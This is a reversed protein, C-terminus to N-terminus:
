SNKSDYEAQAQELADKESKSERLFLDRARDKVEEALEVEEAEVAPNTGETAVEETVKKDELEIKPSAEVLRKVIESVTVTEEKGDSSLTVGEPTVEALLVEEAVKLIAPSFKDNEWGKIQDTVGREHEGLKLGENEAKLRDREALAERVEEESLGLVETKEPTEETAKEKKEEPVTDEKRDALAVLYTANEITLQEDSMAVPVESRRLASRVRAKIKKLQGATYEAANDSMHIFAWSARAHEETGLPCRKEGDEQYGPDAYAVNGDALEEETVSLLTGLWENDLAENEEIVEATLAVDAKAEAAADSEKEESFAMIALGGEQSAAVGFPEMGDLWPRNTLAGHELVAPYVKGTRKHVHNFLIGASTNAISKNLVKAEIDPETFEMGAELITRGKSDKGMRLKRIYGTNQEPKNQHSTPITVHEIVGREFNKKLESMSITFSAADSEGDPTFKIGIPNKLKGTAVDRPSYRWKGERVLTKWILGESLKLAEEDADDLFIEAMMTDDDLGIEFEDALALDAEDASMSAHAKAKLAEWEALAKVAAAKTGADVNGAGVAWRKVASVAIAIAHSKSKGHEILDNAIHQIYAPLQWGKHHWLPNVGVPEHISAKAVSDAALQLDNETIELPM